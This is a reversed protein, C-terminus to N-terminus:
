TTEKLATLQKDVREIDAVAGLQELVPRGAEFDQRAQELRNQKIALRGRWYLARAAEIAQGGNQLISVARDLHRQAAAM